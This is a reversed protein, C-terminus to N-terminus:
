TGGDDGEFLGPKDRRHQVLSRQVLAQATGPCHSAGAWVAALQLLRFAPTRARDDGMFPYSLYQCLSWALTPSIGLQSLQVLQKYGVLSVGHQHARLSLLHENLTALMKLRMAQWNDPSFPGARYWQGPTTLWAVVHHAYEDGLWEAPTWAPGPFDRPVHEDFEAPGIAVVPSVRQWTERSGLLFNTRCWTTLPAGKVPVVRHYSEISGCIIPYASIVELTKPSLVNAYRDGYSLARDNVILVADPLGGPDSCLRDLGEGYASFEAVTNSGRAVALASPKPLDELRHFATASNAVIVARSRDLRSLTPAILDRVLAETRDADYAAVVIGLSPPPLPWRGRAGLGLNSVKEGPVALALIAANRLRRPGPLRRAPGARVPLAAPLTAAAATM